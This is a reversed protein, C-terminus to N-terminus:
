SSDISSMVPMACRLCATLTGRSRRPSTGAAAIASSGRRTGSATCRSATM